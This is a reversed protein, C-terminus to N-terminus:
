EYRSLSGAVVSALSYAEGEDASDMKRRRGSSALCRTMFTSQISVTLAFMTSCQNVLFLSPLLYTRMHSGTPSASARRARTSVLLFVNDQHLVVRRRERMREAERIKQKVSALCISRAKCARRRRCMTSCSALLSSDKFVLKRFDRLLANVPPHTVM